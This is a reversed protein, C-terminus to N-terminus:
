LEDAKKLHSAVFTEPNKIGSMKNKVASVKGKFTKRHLGKMQNKAGKKSVEEDLDDDSNEKAADDDEWM